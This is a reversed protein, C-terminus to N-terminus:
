FLKYQNLQPELGMIEKEVKKIYYDYNIDYEPFPKQIYNIFVTQLWKGSEVQISRDDLQNKKIIKSGKNSVYYRITHQLPEFM